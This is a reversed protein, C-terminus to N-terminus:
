GQKEKRRKERELQRQEKKLEKEKQREQKKQEKVKQHEYKELTKGLGPVLSGKIGSIFAKVIYNFVSKNKDREAFITSVVPQKSRKGAEPNFSRVIKNGLWSLLGIETMGKKEGDKKLVNIKLNKYIMILQGTAYEGNANAWFVLSDLQGEEINVSANLETMSNFARMDMTGIKGSFSFEDSALNEPVDINLVLHGKDFARANLEFTMPGHKAIYDTHNSVHYIRINLDTLRISGADFQAPALEEYVILSNNVEITDIQILSKVHSLMQWPMKPFRTTDFPVNKDRFIELNLGNIILSHLAIGGSLIFRNVDFGRINVSGVNAEFRDTQKGFKKGFLAKSHKPTLALSNIELSNKGLDLTIGGLNFDYFGKENRLFVNGVILVSSGYTKQLITQIPKEPDVLVESVLLQISDARFISKGTIRSFVETSGERIRFYALNLLNIPNPKHLSTDTHPKYNESRLAKENKTLHDILRIQPQNIEIGGVILQKNLLLESIDLGTLSLFPIEAEVMLPYQFRLTDHAQYFLSDPKMSFDHIILEGSLIKLDLSSFDIKYVRSIDMKQLKERILVAVIKGQNKDLWMLGVIAMVILILLIALFGLLIKKM